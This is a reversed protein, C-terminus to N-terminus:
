RVPSRTDPSRTVTFSPRCASLASRQADAAAQLASVDWGDPPRLSVVATHGHRTIQEAAYADPEGVLVVCRVEIGEASLTRLSSLARTVAGVAAGTVLIAPVRLRRVFDIQL